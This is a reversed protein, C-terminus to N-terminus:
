VNGKVLVSIELWSIRLLNIVYLCINRNIIVGIKGIRVWIYKIICICICNKYEYMKIIKNKMIIFVVFIEIVFLGVVNLFFM